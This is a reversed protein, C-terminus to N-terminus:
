RAFTMAQYLTPFQSKKLAHTYYKLIYANVNAFQMGGAQMEKKWSLNCLDYVPCLPLLEPSKTEQTQTWSTPPEGDLPESLLFDCRPCSILFCLCNTKIEMIHQKNTEIGMEYFYFM